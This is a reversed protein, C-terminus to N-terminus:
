YEHAGIDSAAGKPRASSFYDNVTTQSMNAKDKVPSTAQVKYNAAVFGGPSVLKPDSVLDSSSKQSCATQGGYWLNNSFTLSTIDALACFDVGTSQYFINSSIVNGSSSADADVWLMPRTTQYVTNHGIKTNKMGRPASGGTGDYAGYYFASGNGVIINNEIRNDSLLYHTTGFDENAMQLANSPRATGDITRFYEANGTNHIFNNEVLASQANDLYVEVSFNDYVKNGAIHCGRAVNCGIGEGYNNYVTNGVVKSTDTKFVRIGQAWGYPWNKLRNELVNGYVLNNRVEIHTSRTETGNSEAKPGLYIGAKQAGTVTLKIISVQTAGVVEIGHQTANRCEFSILNIYSSKDLLFCSQATNNSHVIAKELAYGRITVPQSATGSYKPGLWVPSSLPYTGARLYVTSGPTIRWVAQQITALPRDITGPNSDSGNPAVYIDAAQATSALLVTTLLSLFKMTHNKTAEFRSYHLGALSMNNKPAAIAIQTEFRTSDAV